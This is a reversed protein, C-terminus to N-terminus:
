PTQVTKKRMMGGYACKEGHGDIGGEPADAPTIRWPPAGARQNASGMVVVGLCVGPLLPWCADVGMQANGWEKSRNIAITTMLSSNNTAITTMLEEMWRTTQKAPAIASSNHGSHCM